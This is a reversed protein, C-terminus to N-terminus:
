VYGLAELTEEVTREPSSNDVIEPEYENEDKATTEVWPVKRIHPHVSGWSHGFIGFEGFAEGHDATILVRERDVNHLVTEVENLVSRLEDLYTQYVTEKDGTKRIYEFPDKEYEKLLRQEELANSTYPSHPQNYHLIIKEYNDNRDADIGSDTVYKPPSHGESHGFEGDEGKAEYKWLHDLRGLKEASVTDWSLLSSHFRPDVHVNMDEFDDKGGEELVIKAYGNSALYATNGILDEYETTFTAAIFEGSTGGVSTKSKINNLFAYEDAVSRLADVRCTDLLIILDFDTSLINTGLLGRSSMMLAPWGLLYEVGKAPNKIGKFIKNM